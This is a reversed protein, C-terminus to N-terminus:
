RGQHPKPLQISVQKGPLVKVELAELPQSTFAGSPIGQQKIVKRENLVVWWVGPPVNSISFKGNEKITNNNSFQLRFPNKKMQAASKGHILKSIADKAADLLGKAPQSEGKLRTGIIAQNTSPDGTLIAHRSTRSRGM